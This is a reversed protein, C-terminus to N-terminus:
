EGLTSCNFTPYADFDTSIANIIRIEHDVQLLRCGPNYYFGLQRFFPNYQKDILPARQQSIKGTFLKENNIPTSAQISVGGFSVGVERLQFNCNDMFFVNQYAIPTDPNAVISYSSRRIFKHKFNTIFGQGGEQENELGDIIDGFQYTGYYKKPDFWKFDVDVLGEEGIKIDSQITLIEQVEINSGTYFQPVGDFIQSFNIVSPLILGTPGSTGDAPANYSFNYAM